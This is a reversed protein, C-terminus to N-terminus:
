YETVGRLHRRRRGHGEEDVGPSGVRSGGSSDGGFNKQSLVKLWNDPASARLAEIEARFADAGGNKATPSTSLDVVDSADTSEEATPSFMAPSLKSRRKSVTGNGSITAYNMTPSRVRLSRTNPSQGAEHMTAGRAHSPRRPSVAVAEATSEKPPSKTTEASTNESAGRRHVRRPTSPEEDVDMAGDIDVVRKTPRKRKSATHVVTTEKTPEAVKSDAVVAPSRQPSGVAVVPPSPALEPSRVGPPTTPGHHSPIILSRREMFTPPSGDLSISKGEKLFMNFCTIRYDPNSEVFPNGEVWVGQLNPLTALRGVEGIDIVDNRRVDVRELAVLRELGCLSDIRNRSLNLTLVQGLMTYIGLVSEIMNDSLNLAVLNFMQNLGSPVSVLLNSSLDLYTVSLLHPIINTPFFTLANDALCLHKLFAWKLRSLQPQLMPSVAGSPVSDEEDEERIPPSTPPPGKWSPRRSDVSKHILKRRKPKVEQGNRRAEDELVADVFVETMDEVGSKRLTLSRLSEALRDWGMILRPDIDVCELTQINKFAYLPVVYDVPPDDALESIVNLSSQHISLAPLKTFASYISKLEADLSPLEARPWWGAGLSMKSVGSISKFSFISASDSRDKAAVLLSVYSLPRSISEAPLRVDLPGVDIGLDEFRMLLYFIHHLDTTYVMPSEPKSMWGFLSANQNNRRAPVANALAQSNNRIFEAIRRVYDDGPERQM